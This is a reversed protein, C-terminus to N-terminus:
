KLVALVEKSRQYNDGEEEAVLKYFECQTCNTVKSVFSGQVKGGCLTGAM